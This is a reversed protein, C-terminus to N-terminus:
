QQAKKIAEWQRLNDQAEANGDDAARRIYEMGETRNIVTHATAPLVIFLTAVWMIIYILINM